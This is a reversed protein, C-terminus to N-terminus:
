YGFGFRGFGYRRKVRVRKRDSYKIRKIVDEIQSDLLDEDIFNTNRNITLYDIKFDTSDLPLVGIYDYEWEEDDYKDVHKFVYIYGLHPGETVDYRKLFRISDKEETTKGSYVLARAVMEQSKWEPDVWELKELEDLGALLRKRMHDKKAFYNWMTDPVVKNNRALLMCIDLLDDDDNLRLARDFYEKVQKDKYFHILLRSIAIIPESESSRYKYEFGSIGSSNSGYRYQYYNRGGSNNHAKAMSRKLANKGDRLIDNKYKKIKKPKIVGSDVMNALLNYVPNKYEPYATYKYLYPFFDKYLRLSDLMDRTWSAVDNSPVLPTEFELLEKSLRSSMKDRRSALGELVAMQLQATDISRRYVKDLYPLVAPHKLRALDVLLESRDDLDFDDHKFSEIIKILGPADSDVLLVSGIESLAYEQKLSDDGQLDSMWLKGRPETIPRGITTDLLEFSEVFTRFFESKINEGDLREKDSLYKLTYVMSGKLVKTVGIRRNSNTDSLVLDMRSSDPHIKKYEIFLKDREYRTFENRWFSDLDPYYTYRSFRRNYVSMEEETPVNTYDRRITEGDYLDDESISRKPLYKEKNFSSYGAYKTNTKVKYFFTSDVFTSYPRWNRPTKLEFSNYFANPREDSNSQVLMHYYSAGHLFTLQHVWRGSDESVSFYAPMGKFTELAGKIENLGNEEQFNQAIFRVEFTDEEIYTLDQYSARELSYFFSDQDYSELQFNSNGLKEMGPIGLSHIPSGPMTLRFNQYPLDILTKTSPNYLIRFSSFVEELNNNDKLYELTGSVKFFFIELPSILILNREYDGKKTRNTIDFGPMGDREIEKRELIKGPINEYLLSDIREQIYDPKVHSLFTNNKLRTLSYTTGNDMDPYFYLKSSNNVPFEKFPAPLLVEFLGDAPKYKSWSKKVYTKELEDRFARSQDNINRLIPRLIYGKEKLLEIMGEPGALHAAGVGSFLSTGTKLISDISNAMIINREVLMYRQHNYSPNMLRQISDVMDLDQERYADQMLEYPQKGQQTMKRLVRKAEKEDDENEDPIQSRMVLRNSELFDELGLVHKGYKKGAQFIYMDLYTEEEFETNTRSNRYLMSNMMQSSTALAGKVKDKDFESFGFTNYLDYVNSTNRYYGGVQELYASDMMEHIWQSPDSELAVKDVSQLAMFFTDGLHFAIKNSVHMTGYLYSPSEQNPSTIEWLLSPYKKESEQALTIPGFFLLSTILLPTLKM